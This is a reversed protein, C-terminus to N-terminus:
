SEKNKWFIISALLLLTTSIITYLIYGSINILNEGVVISMLRTLAQYHPMFYSFSKIAPITLDINFFCGSIIGMILIMVAGLIIFSSVNTIQKTMFLTFSAFSSIFFIFILAYMLFSQFFNDSFYASVSSLMLAIASSSIVISFYEGVIIKWKATKSIILKKILTTEEDKVISTATFLTFFSLFSLIIGLIMQKYIIQNSIKDTAIQENSDLSIFEITVYYNERRNKALEQGYQYAALSIATNTQEEGLAEELYNVATIISIEELMEGVFIDGVMPSLHNNSLYYLDILEDFDGEYVRDEVDAKIVFLATIEGKNVMRLGKKITTKNTKLLENKELNNVLEESFKSESEDVVGIQIKTSDEIEAYLSGILFSFLIVIVIILLKIAINRYILKLRLNVVNWLTSM